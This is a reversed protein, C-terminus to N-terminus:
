CLSRYANRLGWATNGVYGIRLIGTLTVDMTEGADWRSFSDAILKPRHQM